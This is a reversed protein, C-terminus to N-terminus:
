QTTAEQILEDLYWQHIKGDYRFTGSLEVVRKFDEADMDRTMWLAQQVGRRYAAEVPSVGATLSREGCGDQGAVAPRVGTKKWESREEETCELIFPFGPQADSGCFKCYGMDSM